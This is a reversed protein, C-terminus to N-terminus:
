LVVASDRPLLLQSYEEPGQWTSPKAYILSQMLHQKLLNKMLKNPPLQLHTKSLCGIGPTM